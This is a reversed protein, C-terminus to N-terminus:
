GASPFGTENVDRPQVCRLDIWLKSLNIVASSNNDFRKPAATFRSSSCAFNLNFIIVARNVASERSITKPNSPPGKPRNVTRGMIKLLPRAELIRMHCPRALICLLADSLALSSLLVGFPLM